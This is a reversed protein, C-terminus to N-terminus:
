SPSLGTCLPPSSSIRHSWPVLPTAGVSECANILDYDKRRPQKASFAGGPGPGPSDDYNTM